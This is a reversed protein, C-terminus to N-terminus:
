WVLWERIGWDGPRSRRGERVEVGPVSQNEREGARQSAQGSGHNTKNKKKEQNGCKAPEGDYMNLVAM